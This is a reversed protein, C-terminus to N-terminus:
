VRRDRTHNTWKAQLKRALFAAGVCGSFVSSMAAWGFVKWRWVAGWCRKEDSKVRYFAHPLTHSMKSVWISLIAVRQHDSLAEPFTVGGKAPQGGAGSKCGSGWRCGLCEDRAYRCVVIVARAVPCRKLCRL